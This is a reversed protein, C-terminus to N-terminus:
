ITNVLFEWRLEVPLEIFFRAVERHELLYRLARWTYPEDINPVDRLCQMITQRFNSKEIQATHQMNIYDDLKDKMEIMTARTAEISFAVHKMEQMMEHNITAKKKKKQPRSSSLGAQSTGTMGIIPSTAPQTGADSFDSGPPVNPNAEFPNSDFAGYTPNESLENSETHVMSKSGTAYDTGAIITMNDYQPFPINRFVKMGPHMEIYANWVKAEATVCKRTDDWGFGSLELM